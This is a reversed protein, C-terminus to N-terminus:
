EHTQGKLCECRVYCAVTEDHNLKGCLREHRKTLLRQLEVGGLMGFLPALLYIWFGSWVHAWLASGFSRAPNISMGSIPAAVSIFLAVLVAACAGTYPAWSRSRNLTIVASVMVFALAFEVAFARAAGGQPLTVVYNVSPASVFGPLATAALLVGLASGAFQAAVYGAADGASLKGLRVFCLVMAPNMFAGSRKGWGSYILGLATLGMAVGISVRRALASEIAARVPSAPHEFIVVSVCASIMFLGLLAGDIAYVLLRERARGLPRETAISAM